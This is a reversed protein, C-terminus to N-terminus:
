RERFLGEIFYYFSFIGFGFPIYGLYGLLPMEFIHLFDIFPITYVWKVSAWYNWFEWLFGLILVSFIVSYIIKKERMKLAYILSPKKNYYNIPDLILFLFIWVLQFFYKPFLLPLMFCSLGLIIFLWIKGTSIKDRPIVRDSDVNFLGLTVFFAPIVTSFSIFAFLEGYIGFVETGLYHWNGVRLNIFEYVKWFPASIIFMGILRQFNNKVLSRGRIKYVLSDVFLVYGIWIIPFYLYEFPQIKLFFNIESLIILILGIIGYIPLM